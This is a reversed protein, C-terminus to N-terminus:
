FSEEITLVDKAYKQPMEKDWSREGGNYSALARSPSYVDALISYYAIGLAVNDDIVDYSPMNLYGAVLRATGPMIQFYGDEGVTGKAYKYFQSEKQVIALARKKNVDFRECEDFIQGLLVSTEFENAKPFRELIIERNQVVFATKQSEVSMVAEFEIRQKHLEEQLHNLQRLMLFGVVGFVSMVLLFIATMGIIINDKTLTLKKNLSKM